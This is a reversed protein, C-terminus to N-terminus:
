QHWPMIGLSVLLLSSSGFSGCKYAPGVSRLSVAWAWCWSLCAAELPGSHLSPNWCVWVLIAAAGAGRARPPSSWYHSSCPACAAAQSGPLLVVRAAWEANGCGVHRPSFTAKVLAQSGVHSQVIQRWGEHLGDKELESDCLPLRESSVIKHVRKGKIAWINRIKRCTVWSARYCNVSILYKGSIKMYLQLLFPFSWRLVLYEM